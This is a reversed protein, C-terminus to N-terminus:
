RLQGQDTESPEDLIKFVSQAAAIGRQFTNNVSMIGKLPQFLSIDSYLFVCVFGSDARRSDWRFECSLAGFRPFSGIIMISPQSISSARALKMKRSFNLENVGLFKKSELDQPLVDLCQSPRQPSSRRRLFVAWRKNCNLQSKEFVARYM